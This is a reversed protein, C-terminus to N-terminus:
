GEGRDTGGVEEEVSSAVTEVEMSGAIGRREM